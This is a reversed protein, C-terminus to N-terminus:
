KYEAAKALAQFLSGASSGSGPESPLYRPLLAQLLLDTEPTRVLWTMSWGRFVRLMVLRTDLLQCGTHRSDKQIRAYLALLLVTDGELYQFFVNETLYLAGTIDHRANFDRGTELIRSIEDDTCNRKSTYILRSLM